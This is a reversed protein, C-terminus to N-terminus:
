KNLMSSVFVLFLDSLYKFNVIFVVSRYWQRKTAGYFTTNRGGCKYKYLEM